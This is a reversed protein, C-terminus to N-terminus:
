KIPELEQILKKGENYDNVPILMGNGIVYYGDSRQTIRLKGNTDFSQGDSFKLMKNYRWKKEYFLNKITEWTDFLYSQSM